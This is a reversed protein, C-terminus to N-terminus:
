HAASSGLINIIENLCWGLEVARTQHILHEDSARAWKADQEANDLRKVLEVRLAELKEKM